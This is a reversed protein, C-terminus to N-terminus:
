SIAMKLFPTVNYYLVNFVFFPNNANDGNNTKIANM